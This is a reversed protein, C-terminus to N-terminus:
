SKERISLGVLLYLFHSCSVILYSQETNLDPSLETFSVLKSFVSTVPSLNNVM